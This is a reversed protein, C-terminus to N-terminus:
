THFHFIYTHSLLEELLDYIFQHSDYDKDKKDNCPEKSVAEIFSALLIKNDYCKILPSIGLNEIMFYLFAKALKAANRGHNAICIARYAIKIYSSQQANLNGTDNSTIAIPIEHPQIPVNNEIDDLVEKGLM